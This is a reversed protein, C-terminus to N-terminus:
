RVMNPNSAELEWACRLDDNYSSPNNPPEFEGEGRLSFECEVNTNNAVFEFIIILSLAFITYAICSLGCQLIQLM